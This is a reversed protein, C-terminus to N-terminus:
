HPKYRYLMWSAVLTLYLAYLGTLHDANKEGPYSSSITHPLTHMCTYHVTTCILLQPQTTSYGERVEGRRERETRARTSDCVTLTHTHTHTHTYMRAHTRAHLVLHVHVHVHTQTLDPKLTYFPLLWGASQNHHITKEYFPQGLVM